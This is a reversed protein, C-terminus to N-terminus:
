WPPPFSIAEMENGGKGESGRGGAWSVRNNRLLFKENDFPVGNPKEEKPCPGRRTMVLSFSNTWDKSLLIEEVSQM